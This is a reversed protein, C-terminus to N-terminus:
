GACALDSAYSLEYGLRRMLRGQRSEIRVVQERTLDDRWGGAKGRRFFQIGRRPAEAFGNRQEEECLFAFRCSTVARKIKDASAAVEAFDLAGSLTGATDNLLDEYRILHVPIDTQDLWSAAHSSWSLLKQRFQMEQGNTET